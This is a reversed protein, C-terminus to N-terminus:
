NIRLEALCDLIFTSLDITQKGRAKQLRSVAQMFNSYSIKGSENAFAFEVAKQLGSPTASPTSMLLNYQQDTGDVEAFEDFGLQDFCTRLESSNIYGDHGDDNAKFIKSWRELYPYLNCFEDLGLRFDTFASKQFSILM